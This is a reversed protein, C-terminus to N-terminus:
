QTIREGIKTWDAWDYVKRGKTIPQTRAQLNWESYIARHDSGYNEHYLHCKILLNPNNTVTQDITSNQGPDNLAWYTVTGCPLCGHLSNNQFFAILDSADEIFLTSTITNQIATLIPEASTNDGSYLPVSPLYVSFLLIQSDPTWIKVAVVDLHDCPVQRHSATPVRRNVYILSRFRTADTEVTPQYLRWASHNVRTRYTTISPEQILLIDLDQSQHDNILAEMRPGSKM